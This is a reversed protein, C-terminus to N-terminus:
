SPWRRKPRPSQGEDSLGGDGSVGGPHCTARHHARRRSRCRPPISRRAPIARGGQTRVRRKHQVQKERGEAPWCALRVPRQPVPAAPFPAQLRGRLDRHDACAPEGALPRVDRECAKRSAHENPPRSSSRVARMPLTRSLRAVPCFPPDNQRHSGALSPNDYRLLASQIRCATRCARDEKGRHPHKGLRRVRRPYDRWAHFM